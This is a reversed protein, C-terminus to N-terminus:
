GIIKRRFFVFIVIGAVLIVGAIIGGVLTWNTTPEDPVVPAPPTPMPEPEPEPAPAPVPEPEPSPAPEPEPSPAPEPAPAPEPEPAPESIPEPVPPAEVQGLIAVTTFHALAASVTNNATNVESSLTIWKGSAANYYALVLDEEAVGEALNAPDYSFVLTIPPSFVAGDPGFDYALGIINKDEPPSPLNSEDDITLNSLPDGEDDLAITNVPITIAVNGDPSTSKIEELIKGTDSISFTYNSGYLTAQLEEGSSAGGGGGAPPATAVTISLNLMTMAMSQWTYTQETLVDNVYFTLVTGSSIDGQVVLKQSYPNAADLTGYNGAEVTMIPNGPDTLVGEGKAEIKTGVPAPNGNITVNGYFTHPLSPEAASVPSYMIAALCLLVAVTLVVIIKSTFIKNM